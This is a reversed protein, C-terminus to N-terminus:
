LEGKGAKAGDLIALLREGQKRMGSNIGHGACNSVWQALSRFQELEVAPQEPPPACYLPVDAWVQPMPKAFLYAKSSLGAQLGKITDPHVYGVPKQGEGEVPIPQEPPPTQGESGEHPRLFGCTRCEQLILTNVPGNIFSGSWDHRCEKATM